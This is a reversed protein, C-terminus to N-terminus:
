HPFTNACREYFLMYANSGLVEDMHAERIEDDSALFWRTPQAHARRYTAYHGHGPTDGAHVVVAALQYTHRWDALAAAALLGPGARGWAPPALPSGGESASTRVGSAGGLIGGTGHLYTYPALSLRAPFQVHEHRKSRPGSARSVHLCLCAPARGIQVHRVHPQEQGTCQASTCRVGELQEPQTFKALLDHLRVSQRVGRRWAPEPLPLTISDFRETRLPSRKGCRDCRLQSALTGTFPPPVPPLNAPPPPAADGAAWGWVGGNPALSLSSRSVARRRLGLSPTFLSGSSGWRHRGGSNEQALEVLSLASSSGRWRPLQEKEVEDEYDDAPPTSPPALVDALCCAVGAGGSVASAAEQQEQLSNLIVHLLEHADHEGAPIAWGLKRLACMVEDPSWSESTISEHTGNIVTVSM